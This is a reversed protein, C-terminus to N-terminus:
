TLLLPSDQDAATATAYKASELRIQARSFRPGRCRPLPSLSSLHLSSSIISPLPSPCGENFYVCWPSQCQCTFCEVFCHGLLLLCPSKLFFSSTNQCSVKLLTVENNAPLKSIVTMVETVQNWRHSLLCERLLIFLKPLLSAGSNVYRESM